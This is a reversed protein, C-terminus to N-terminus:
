FGGFTKQWAEKLENIKTDLPIYIRELPLQQRSRLNFRDTWGLLNLLQDRTLEVETLSASTGVMEELLKFLADFDYEHEETDELQQGLDLECSKIFGNFDDDDLGTLEQFDNWLEKWDDPLSNIMGEVDNKAPIWLNEIFYKTHNKSSSIAGSSIKLRDHTSPIQNTYLHVVTKMNPERLLKWGDVLQSLISPTDSVDNIFDTKYNWYKNVKSWKVQYADLRQNSYILIDDVRGAKPNVLVVKVLSKDLLGKIILSTALHYQHYYGQIASREGESPPYEDM